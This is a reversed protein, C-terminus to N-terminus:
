INAKSLLNYVYIIKDFVVQGGDITRSELNIEAVVKGYNNNNNIHFKGEPFFIKLGNTEDQLFLDFEASVWNLFTQYKNNSDFFAKKKLQHFPANYSTEVFSTM